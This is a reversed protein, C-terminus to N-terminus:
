LFLAPYLGMMTALGGGVNCNIHPNPPCEPSQIRTLFISDTVDIRVHEVFLTSVCMVVVIM